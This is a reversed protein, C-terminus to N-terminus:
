FSSFPRFASANPGSEKGQKEMQEGLRDAATRVLEELTEAQEMVYATIGNRFETIKVAAKKQFDQLATERDM